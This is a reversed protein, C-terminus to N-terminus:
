PVIFDRECRISHVNATHQCLNRGLGGDVLADVLLPSTTDLRHVSLKLNDNGAGGLVQAQVRGRLKSGSNLADLNVLIQSSGLGGKAQVSLSGEDIGGYEIFIRDQGTGHANVSLFAGAAIATDIFALDVKDRGGKGNLDLSLGAGSRVNDQITATITDDLHSGRYRIALNSGTQLDGKLTITFANHGEGLNVDVLRSVGTRLNRNLQYEVDDDGSGTRVRIASAAINPNFEQGDCRVTINGGLATGDDIILISHLTNDGRIILVNGRALISCALLCRTELAEVHPVINM